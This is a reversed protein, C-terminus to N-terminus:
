IFGMMGPVWAEITNEIITYGSGVVICVIGGIFFQIGRESRDGSKRGAAYFVGGIIMFITGALVAWAALDSRMNTLIDTVTQMPVMHPTAAAATGTFVTGLLLTAILGGIVRSRMNLAM